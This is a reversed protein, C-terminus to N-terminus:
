PWNREGPFMERIRRDLNLRRLALPNGLDYAQTALEEFLEALVLPRGRSHQHLWAVINLAERPILGAAVTAVVFARTEAPHFPPLEIREVRGLLPWVHGIDWSHESRACLWTPVRQMVCEFFSSLRPSTWGVGDFVVTRGDEALARLLRNKRPILKLGDPNLGLQPELNECISGLHASHPSLLLGLEGKLHNVLATKGVGPPGLLLAPKRAAQLHKLRASEKQRGVFPLALKRPEDPNATQM